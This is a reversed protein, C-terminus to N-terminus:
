DSNQMKWEKFNEIITSRYFDNDLRDIVNMTSAVVIPLNVFSFRATKCYCKTPHLCQALLDGSMTLEDSSSKKLELHKIEAYDFWPYQQVYIFFAKFSRNVANNILEKSNDIIYIHLEESTDANFPKSRNQFIIEIRYSDNTNHIYGSVFQLDYTDSGYECSTDMTLTEGHCNPCSLIFTTIVFFIFVAVYFCRKM